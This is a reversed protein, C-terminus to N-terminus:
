LFLDKRELWGLEKMTRGILVPLPFNLFSDYSIRLYGPLSFSDMELPLLMNFSANIEQHTLQHRFLRSTKLVEVKQGTFLESCINLQILQATSVEMGTEIMPFEYLKEWIDKGQRQRIYTSGNNLVVMYHFYRKRRRPPKKRLPLLDVEGKRYSYCQKNLPCDKCCPNAPTCIRAGLEMMAQNHNGPDRRDLVQDAKQYIASKSPPLGPAESIAFLRAIVRHVNGDVAARKENFAISSIAAATYPGIGKMQILKEYTSPFECHHESVITRATQHMNRARSYYGLGQWVLLVDEISAHALSTVDPFRDRFRHYYEIGQSIRTQQLIIESVWIVFPDRSLRWPLIRKNKEYWPLLYKSIGM